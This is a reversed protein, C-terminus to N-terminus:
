GGVPRNKSTLSLLIWGYINLCTYSFFHIFSNTGQQSKFKLGRCFNFCEAAKGRRSSFINFPNLMETLWNEGPFINVHICENSFLFLVSSSNVHMLIPVQFSMSPIEDEPLEEDESDHEDTKVRDADELVAKM